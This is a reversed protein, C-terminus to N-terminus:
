EGSAALGRAMRDKIFDYVTFYIGWTPLYGAITPGLGRYFGRVGSLRYIRMCTKTVGEYGKQDKRISQAQLTTKVVDLPCTAISSVLGAGAGAIMSHLGDPVHFKGRRPSGDAARYHRDGGSGYGGGAGSSSSPGPNNIAFLPPDAPASDHTSSLALSSSSRPELPSSAVAEAARSSTTAEASGDHSLPSVM